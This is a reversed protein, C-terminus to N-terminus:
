ATWLRVALTCCLWTKMSQSIGRRDISSRRHAVHLALGRLCHPSSSLHSEQVWVGTRCVPFCLLLDTFLYRCQQNHDKSHPFYHHSPYYNLLQRWVGRLFHGKLSMVHSRHIPDQLFLKGPPLFMSFFALTRPAGPMNLFCFSALRSAFLFLCAILHPCLACSLGSWVPTTPWPLSHPDM